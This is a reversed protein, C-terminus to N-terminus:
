KSVPEYRMSLTGDDSRYDLLRKGSGAYLTYTGTETRYKGESLEGKSSIRRGNPLITESNGDEKIIVTLHLVGVKGSSNVPAGGLRAATAFDPAMYTGEWKGAIEKLDRISRAPPLTACAFALVALFSILFITWDMCVGPRKKM